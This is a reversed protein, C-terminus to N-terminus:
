IIGYSCSGKSLSLLLLLILLRRIRGIFSLLFIVVLILTVFLLTLRRRIFVGDLLMKESEEVLGVHM